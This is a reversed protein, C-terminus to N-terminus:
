NCLHYLMNQSTKALKAEVNSVVELNLYSFSSLHTLDIIFIIAQKDLFSSLTSDFSSSVVIRLLPSGFLPPVELFFSLKM